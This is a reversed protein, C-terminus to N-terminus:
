NIPLEGEMEQSSQNKEPAEGSQGNEHGVDWLCWKKGEQISSQRKESSDVSM